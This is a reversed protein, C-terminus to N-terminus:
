SRTASCLAIEPFSVWDLHPDIDLNGEGEFTFEIIRVTLQIEGFSRVNKCGELQEGLAMRASAIAQEILRSLDPAVDVRQDVPSIDLEPLSELRNEAIAITQRNKRRCATALM